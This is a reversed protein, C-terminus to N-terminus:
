KKRNKGKNSERERKARCLKIICVFLTIYLVQPSPGPGVSNNEFVLRTDLPKGQCNVSWTWISLILHPDPIFYAFYRNLSGFSLCVITPTQIAPPLHLLIFFSDAFSPNKAPRQLCASFNQHAAVPLYLCRLRQRRTGIRPESGSGCDRVRVRLRLGPGSRPASFLPPATVM